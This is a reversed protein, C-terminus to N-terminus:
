YKLFGKIFVKILKNLLLLLYNEYLCRDLKETIRVTFKEIVYFRYLYVTKATM